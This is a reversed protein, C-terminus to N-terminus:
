TSTNQISVQINDKGRAENFSRRIKLYYIDAGVEIYDDFENRHPNNLFKQYYDEIKLNAAENEIIQYRKKGIM